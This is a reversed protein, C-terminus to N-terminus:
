GVVKERDLSDQPLLSPSEGQSLRVEEARGQVEGSVPCRWPLGPQWGPGQPGLGVM